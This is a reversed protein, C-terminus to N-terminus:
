QTVKFVKHRSLAGRVLTVADQDVGYFDAVIEHVRETAKGKEPPEQVRVKLVGNEQMAASESRAGPSVLVEVTFARPQRISEAMDQRHNSTM